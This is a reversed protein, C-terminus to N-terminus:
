PKAPALAKALKGEFERFSEWVTKDREEIIGTAKALKDRQEITLVALAREARERAAREANAQALATRAPHSFDIAPGPANLLFARYEIIDEKWLSALRNEQQLFEGTIPRLTYSPWGRGSM